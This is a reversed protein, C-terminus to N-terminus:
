RRDRPQHFSRKKWIARLAWCPPYLEGANNASRFERMVLSREEQPMEGHLVSVTFDRQTLKDAVFNVTQKKNCFIIAQTITLHEYLDCLTDIKFDEEGVAVYFQKIGDLTLQEKKVLIRVPDRMFKGAMELVEPPITASFLCVQIEGPLYQFIDYIQDTFGRSLLEDAEDLAFVM